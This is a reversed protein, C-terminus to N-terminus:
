EWAWGIKRFRADLADTLRGRVVGVFAESKVPERWRRESGELMQVHVGAFKCLWAM